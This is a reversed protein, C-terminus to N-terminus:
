SQWRRMTDYAEGIGHRYELLREFVEADAFDLSRYAGQGGLM